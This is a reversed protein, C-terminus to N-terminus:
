PFMTYAPRLAVEAIRGGRVRVSGKHVIGDRRAEVQVEGEDEIAAIEERRTVFEIRAYGHALLRNTLREVLDVRPPAPPHPTVEGHAPEAQLSELMHVLTGELRGQAERLGGLAHEIRRLDIEQREEVFREVSDHLDDLRDLRELGDHIERLARVVRLLLIALVVVGVLAVAAVLLAAEREPPLESLALFM